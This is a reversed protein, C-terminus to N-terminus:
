TKKNLLSNQLSMKHAARVQMCGEVREDKKAGLWVFCRRPDNVLHYVQTHIWRVPPRKKLIKKIDQLIQM